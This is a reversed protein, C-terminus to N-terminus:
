ENCTDVTIVTFIFGVYHLIFGDLGIWDQTQMAVVHQELWQVSLVISYPQDAIRPILM